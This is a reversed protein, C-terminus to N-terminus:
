KTIAKIITYSKYVYMFLLFKKLFKTPRLALGHPLVHGREQAGAQEAVHQEATGGGQEVGAQMFSLTKIGARPSGCCCIEKVGISLSGHM